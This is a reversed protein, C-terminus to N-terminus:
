EMELEPEPARYPIWVGEKEEGAFYAIVPTCFAEMDASFSCKEVRCVGGAARLVQFARIAADECVSGGQAAPSLVNVRVSAGSHDMKELQVAVVVGTIAVREGSSYARRVRFGGDLLYRVTESLIGM